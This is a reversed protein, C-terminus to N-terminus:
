SEYHVNKNSIRMTAATFALLIVFFVCSVVAARDVRFDVFALEYVWFVMVNTSQYPGGSTMVDVSQFVKMSAIFTTVFLFLTTPSLLPLTIYRFRQLGNAGDIKAAEYYEPSIGRMASLYIMMGYGVVRWGTLILVSALASGESNLWKVPPIGALGLAYNMVGYQDNLIWMFVIASTSIAIYKPMFVIARMASFAKSGRNFLAALLIGGALTILIEWFTYTFTIGLSSLWPKAGSGEFLWKWNKLGVYKYDDKILNWNTFGIRFLEVVPYYVFVAFFALAPAVCLFDKARERRRYGSARGTRARPALANDSVQM